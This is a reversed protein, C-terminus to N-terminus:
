LELETQSFLSKWYIMGMGAGPFLDTFEDGAAAGLMKFLWLYFERPKEGHCKSKTKHTFIPPTAIVYDKEFWPSKRGTRAPKVIVPEWAYIPAVNSKM